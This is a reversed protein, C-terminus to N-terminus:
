IAIVKRSDASDRALRAVRTLYFSAETTEALDAPNDRIARLVDGFYNEKAPLPLEMPPQVATTLTCINGTLYCEIVGRTGVVRLWDDGHTPAAEPRLYDVSVTAHGGNSLELVLVCNDECSPYKPHAFNGQMAAVTKFRLGTATFIFDLAHIGIWPITGGYLERQGFWTPRDDGFKYSKRTNCLVVKGILEERIAQRAARMAPHACNGLIAVCQLNNKTVTGRLAELDEHGLALPKECILHSGSRAVVAAESAIQDLRTSVITVQPQTRKLLVRSNEFVPANKAIVFRDQLPKFDDEPFVKSLGVIEVEEPIKNLDELVCSGHGWTGIM